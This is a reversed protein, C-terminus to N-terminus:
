SGMCFKMVRRYGRRTSFYGPLLSLSFFAMLLPCKTEHCRVCAARLFNDNLVNLIDDQLPVEVTKSNPYSSSHINTKTTPLLQFKIYPKERLFTDTTLKSVSPAFYNIINQCVNSEILQYLGNIM